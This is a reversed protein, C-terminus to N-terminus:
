RVPCLAASTSRSGVTVPASGVERWLEQITKAIPRNIIVGFAGEDNHQIMLVLTRAFNPDVLQPCAVLLQGELSEMPTVAALSRRGGPPVQCRPVFVDETETQERGAQCPQRVQPGPGAESAGLKANTEATSLDHRGPYDSPNYDPITM